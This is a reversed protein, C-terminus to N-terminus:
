QFLPVPAQWLFAETRRAPWSPGLFVCAPQPLHTTKEPEDGQDTLGVDDTGAGAMIALIPGHSAGGIWQM